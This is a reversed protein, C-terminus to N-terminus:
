SSFATLSPRFLLRAASSSALKQLAVGLKEQEGKSAAEVAMEIVPVPFEMKELIIPKNSRRRKRYEPAAGGPSAATDAPETM